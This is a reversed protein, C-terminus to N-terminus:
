LSALPRILRKGAMMLVLELMEDWVNGNEQGKIMRDIRSARGLMQEWRALPHRKLAAQYAAKRKDWVRQRALASDMSNGQRMDELIKLIARIERTLAWLILVTEEGEGQLGDLMRTVRTADGSLACDVLGFIDYRSSDAVAELVQEASIEGAGFLLRLKEIEQSAALMNGEIRAALLEAVQPGARLGAAQMRRNIWGPLQAAEVPWVQVVVGIKDIAKYWASNQAEKELKGTIIMLIDDGPPKACYEQIAQSGEKGPKASSMRLEVLRREAFLSLTSSQAHLWRWDFGTEVHMIERESCGATRASARIADCCEMIQLPEDGSVLYLPALGQKLQAALKEPYLKM